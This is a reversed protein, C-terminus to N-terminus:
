WGPSVDTDKLNAVTDDTYIIKMMEQWIVFNFADIIILVVLCVTNVM